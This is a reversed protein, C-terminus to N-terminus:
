LPPHARERTDGRVWGLAVQRYAQVLAGHELRLRKGALEVHVGRGPVSNEKWWAKGQPMEGEWGQLVHGELEFDKNEACFPFPIGSLGIHGYSPSLSLTKSQWPRTPKGAVLAAPLTVSLRRSPLHMQSNSSPTLYGLICIHTVTYQKYHHYM